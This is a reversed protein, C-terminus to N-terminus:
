QTCTFGFRKALRDNVRGLMKADNKFWNMVRDCTRIRMNVSLSEKATAVPSVPAAAHPQPPSRPATLTPATGGRGPSGRRGGGSQQAPSSSSTSSFTSSSSSSSVPALCAATRNAISRIEAGNLVYDYIRIDDIYGDWHEGGDNAGAIYIYDSDTLSTSSGVGAGDLEGNVYLRIAGSSKRRTVCSHVWEGTNIDTNGSFTYESMGDGNGFVLHNDQNMGFGFDNASGPSEAHLIARSEWHDDGSGAATTKVWACLTFDDEVPRAARLYDLHAASFEYSYPNTVPGNEPVGAFLDPTGGGALDVADFGNGSEDPATSDDFSDLPWHAQLTCVDASATETGVFAIASAQISYNGAEDVAFVSYYHLGDEVSTHDYSTGTIGTAVPDGETITDPYYSGATRIVISDFDADSPNTWSFQVTTGSVEVSLDSPPDPVNLDCSYDSCLMAVIAGNNDDNVAFVPFGNEAIAVDSSFGYSVSGSQDVTQVTSASCATNSCHAIKFESETFNYYGMIPFGDDGIAMSINQGVDDASSDVVTITASSCTENACHAAKVNGNTADYYAIFPLDDNGLQVENYRGVNGTTDIVRSTNISCTDDDCDTFKLEGTLYDYYSIIPFGDAGIAVSIDMTDEGATLETATSSTCDADACKFAMLPFDEGWTLSVIFPLGDEPIVFSPHYGGVADNSIVEFSATTCAANDCNAFRLDTGNDMFLIRPLGDDGIAITTEYGTDGTTYLTTATGDTCEADSCHFVRLDSGTQKRYSMIPFGDAGIAISNERGSSGVSDLLTITGALGIVPFFLLTLCVLAIALRGQSREVVLM